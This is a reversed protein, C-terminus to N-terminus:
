REASAPAWGARRLSEAERQLHDNLELDMERERRRRLFVDGFLYRLQRLVRM